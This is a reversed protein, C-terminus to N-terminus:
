CSVDAWLHQIMIERPTELAHTLERTKKLLALREATAKDGGAKSFADGAATVEALLKPVADSKCPAIVTELDAPSSSM